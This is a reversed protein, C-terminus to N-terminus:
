LFAARAIELHSEPHRFYASPANVHGIEEM